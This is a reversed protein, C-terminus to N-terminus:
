GNEGRPQHPVAEPSATHQDDGRRERVRGAVPEGLHRAGLLQERAEDHELPLEIGLDAGGSAHELGSHIREVHAGSVHRAPQSNYLLTEGGLGEQPIDHSKM